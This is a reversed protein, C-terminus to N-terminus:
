VFLCVQAVSHTSTSPLTVKVLELTVARMLHGWGGGWVVFYFVRIERCNVVQKPLTDGHGFFLQILPRNISTDSNLSVVQSKLSQLDMMPYQTLNIVQNGM